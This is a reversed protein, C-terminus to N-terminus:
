LLPIVSAITLTGIWLRLTGPSGGSSLAGRYRHEEVLHPVTAIGKNHPSLLDRKNYENLWRKGHSRKVEGIYGLSLLTSFDAPSSEDVVPWFHPNAEASTLSVALSLSATSFHTAWNPFISKTIQPLHATPKSELKAM